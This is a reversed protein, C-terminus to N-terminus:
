KKPQTKKTRKKVPAKNKKQEKFQITSDAPVTPLVTASPRSATDPVIKMVKGKKGNPIMKIVGSNEEPFDGDRVVNVENQNLGNSITNTTQARVVGAFFCCFPIFLLAKM